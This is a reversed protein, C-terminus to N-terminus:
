NTFNAYKKKRWYYKTVGFILLLVIPFLMNVAKWFGGDAAIKVKDLPRIKIEKTRATIIGEGDIIYSLVNLILDENAFKMGAYTDFGLEYPQQNQANVDNKAIDGDAMVVVKTDVGLGISEVEGVGEPSLRNHYLSTFQGELLYAIPLNPKDFKDQNLQRQLDNVSVKVPANLSRSYPSTFLLPTKQIGTAKVTDMTSVFKTAVADMNKVAPHDAYQSILPFFPWPMMQIQPQDGVNGVVVPYRASVMDQVLDNNIRVGYRFLMDDLKLDYPFAYNFESSISDMHVELKDILFLARGGKMIYQDLYFKDVESYTKTPKAIILADYLEPTLQKAEVHEILYNSELARQLGELELGNLEGHGKLMGIKKREIGTLQAIANALEYEASEISQNIKERASAAQSNKLLMVGKEGSGYSVLAGPLILKQIKAGNEEDYVRTPTIGKDSLSTIFENRLKPDMAATPDEFTYKIKNNSYVRFEDLVERIGTQLRKFDPNLDGDLFVEIHVEDVLESLMTRTAEKITYRNEATFDVRFFMRSSLTNILLLLVLGILLKLIDETRKSAVM